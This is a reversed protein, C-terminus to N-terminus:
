RSSSSLAQPTVFEPVVVMLNATPRGDDVVVGASLDPADHHGVAANTLFPSYIMLHPKWNGAPKGDDSILHQAGSMMYVVALRGPLRFEGAALRDAIQRDAERPSVGRHYLETRHTEMPMITAAAEADFCEPELSEVWSRNVLCVASGTGAEAVIFGTDSFVLVSATASVSAPAASRALAVEEARPLLRRPGAQGSGAQQAAALSPILIGLLPLLCLRRLLM